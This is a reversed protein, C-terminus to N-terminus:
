THENRPENPEHIPNNLRNMELNRLNIFLNITNM